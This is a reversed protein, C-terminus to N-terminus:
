RALSHYRDDVQTIIQGGPLERIRIILNNSLTSM